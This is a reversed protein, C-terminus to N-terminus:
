RPTGFSLAVSSFYDVGFISRYILPPFTSDTKHAHFNSYIFDNLRENWWDSYEVSKRIQDDISLPIEGM